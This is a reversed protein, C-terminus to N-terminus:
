RSEGNRHVFPTRHSIDGIHQHQHKHQRHCLGLKRGSLALFPGLYPLQPLSSLFFFALLELSRMFGKIDSGAHSGQDPTNRSFLSRANPGFRAM